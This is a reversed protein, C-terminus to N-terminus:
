GRSGRNVGLEAALTISYFGELPNGFILGVRPGRELEAGDVRAEKNTKLVNPM